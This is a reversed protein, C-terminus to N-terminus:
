FLETQMAAKVHGKIADIDEIALSDTILRAAATSQWAASSGNSLQILRSRPKSVSLQLYENLENADVLSGGNDDIPLIM